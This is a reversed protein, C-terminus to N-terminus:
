FTSDGGGSDSNKTVKYLCFIAILAFVIGIGLWGFLGNFNHQDAWYSNIQFFSGVSVFASITMAIFWKKANSM